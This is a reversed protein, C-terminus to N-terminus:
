KRRDQLKKAKGKKEELKIALSAIDEDGSEAMRSAVAAAFGLDMVAIMSCGHKGLGAALENKTLKLRILPVGSSASFGSARRLANDSADAALLLLKARGSRAAAGTSEEGIELAGAKRAMALMALAKDM